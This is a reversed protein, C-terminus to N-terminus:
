MRDPDGSALSALVSEHMLDASRVLMRLQREFPSGSFGPLTGAVAAFVSTLSAMLGLFAVVESVRAESMQEELEQLASVVSEPVLIMSRDFEDVLRYWREVHVRVEEAADIAGSGGARYLQM